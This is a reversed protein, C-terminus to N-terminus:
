LRKEHEKQQEKRSNMGAAREPHKKKRDKRDTREQRKVKPGTKQVNIQPPTEEHHHRAGTGSPKRGPVALSQRM